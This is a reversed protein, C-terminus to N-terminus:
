DSKQKRMIAISAGALATGALIVLLIPLGSGGDDDSGAQNGANPTDVVYTEDSPSQVLYTEDAPAQASAGIPSALLAAALACIALLLITRSRSYMFALQGPSTRSTLLTM